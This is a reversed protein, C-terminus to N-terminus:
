QKSGTGTTRYEKPSVGVNKEFTHIFHSADFFGTQIAISTVSQDTTLLLSMAKSIRHDTIFDGPTKGSFKKFLLYYTSRSIHLESALENIDLKQDYDRYIKEVARTFLMSDSDSVNETEPSYERCFFATLKTILYLANINLGIADHVTLEEKINIKAASEIIEYIESYENDRFKLFRSVGAFERIQPAIDFFAFYGPMSILDSEYKKFFDTHLIIHYVVLEGCNWYGHKIKPPIVFVDGESVEFIHGSYYHAGKGGLIINIEYYDHAHMGISYDTLLHHQVLLTRGCRKDSYRWPTDTGDFLTKPYEM